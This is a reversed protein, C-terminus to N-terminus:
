DYSIKRIRKSLFEFLTFLSFNEFEPEVKPQKSKWILSTNNNTQKNIQLIKKEYGSKEIKELIEKEITEDTLLCVFTAPRSKDQFMLFLECVFM